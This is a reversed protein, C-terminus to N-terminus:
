VSLPFPTISASLRVDEIHSATSDSTRRGVSETTIQNKVGDPLVGSILVSMEM